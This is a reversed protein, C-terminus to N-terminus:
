TPNQVSSMDVPAVRAIWNPKASIMHIDVLAICIIFTLYSIGRTFSGLKVRWNAICILICGSLKSNGMRGKRNYGYKSISTIFSGFVTCISDLLMRENGRGQGSTM